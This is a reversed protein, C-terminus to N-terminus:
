IPKEKIDDFAYKKRNEFIMTKIELYM